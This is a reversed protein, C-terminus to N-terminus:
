QVFHCLYALYVWASFPLKFGNVTLLSYSLKDKACGKPM